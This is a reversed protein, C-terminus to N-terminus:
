VLYHPLLCFLCQNSTTNILASGYPVSHIACTLYRKDDFASFALRRSKVLQNVHDQSRLSFFDVSHSSTVTDLCADMVDFPIKKKFNYPIGKAKMQLELNMTEFAYSKSRLGVFRIIESHPVENKLFGLAKARSNDYLVHDSAYNSCDMISSIKKVAENASRTKVALLFSDTDSMIVSCGGTGFVPKIEEYLLSQMVYKSLELVSFGVAWNQRMRLKRKKLFSITLDEDCIVSGKFLPSTAIKMAKEKDGHIFRCDMRNVLGEIM